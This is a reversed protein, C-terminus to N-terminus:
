GEILRMDFEIQESRGLANVFLKPEGIVEYLNGRWEVSALGDTGETWADATTIVHYRSTRVDRGIEDETADLPQVAAPIETLEFSGYTPNGYRDLTESANRGTVNIRERLAARPIM